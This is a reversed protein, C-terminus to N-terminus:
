YVIFEDLARALEHNAALGDFAARREDPLHRHLVHLLQDRTRQLSYTVNVLESLRQAAAQAQHIAAAYGEAGLGEFSNILVMGPAIQNTGCDARRVITPVGAGLAESVIRGWSDSVSNVLMLDISRYFDCM